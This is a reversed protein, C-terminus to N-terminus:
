YNPRSTESKTIIRIFKLCLINNTLLNKNFPIIKYNIWNYQKKLIINYLFSFINKSLMEKEPLIKERDDIKM